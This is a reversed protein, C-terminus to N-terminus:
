FMVRHTGPFDPMIFDRAKFDDVHFKAGLLREFTDQSVNSWKASTNGQGVLHDEPYDGPEFLFSSPTSRQLSDVMEHDLFGAKDGFFARQVAGERNFLLLFARPDGTLRRSFELAWGLIKFEFPYPQVRYPM